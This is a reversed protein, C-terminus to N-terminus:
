SLRRGFRRSDTQPKLGFKFRRCFFSLKPGQSAAWMAVYLSGITDAALGARPDKSSINLPINTLCHHLAQLAPTGIGALASSAFEPQREMLRVVSPIAPEAVEGLAWFGCRARLQHM